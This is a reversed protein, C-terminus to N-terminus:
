EGNRWEGIKRITDSIFHIEAETLAPGSPLYLGRKCLDEAVPFKQGRFREFYIPQFHIPIFFTRTEIGQEALKQRLVDRSCGFADEVVIGYMWFVNKAYAAQQPLGLGKIDGLAQHYLGANRRRTEILEALRETQALGIAAQLNTMRYNFGLYQHWFHREASFAHDRLRRATLALEENNTTIMGGEGTTVIKNAYFSFTAADSLSGAPRNHYTAGHAEAADEIVLLNHRRAIENVPDMDVPHGYTHVVIIAKTRSTIKQEILDVNMNWTFPEADVLVPDAGTYSVANPTAIMTFAPLIVEDGHGIGLTALALHLAVTGNACAIGYKCGAANAFESEFRRVYPGISSIWNTEICETVYRLENGDLVTDAVPIVERINAASRKCHRIEPDTGPVFDKILNFDEDSLQSRSIM